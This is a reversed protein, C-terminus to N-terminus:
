LFNFNIDIESMTGNKFQGLRIYYNIQESIFEIIILHFPTFYYITWFISLDSTYLFLLDFIFLFANKVSNANNILGIIIGSVDKNVFYAIIDYILKPVYAFAGIM